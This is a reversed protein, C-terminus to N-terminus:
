SAKRSLKEDQEGKRTQILGILTDVSGEGTEDLLGLSKAITKACVVSPATKSSLVRSLHSRDFGTSKALLILSIYRGGLRITYADPEPEICLSPVRKM